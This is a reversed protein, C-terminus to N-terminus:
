FKVLPVFPELSELNLRFLSYMPVGSKPVRGGGLSLTRLSIFAIELVKYLPSDERGSYAVYGSGYLLM